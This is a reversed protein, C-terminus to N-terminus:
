ENGKDAVSKLCDRFFRADDTGTQYEYMKPDFVCAVIEKKHVTLPHLAAVNVIRLSTGHPEASSADLEAIVRQLQSEDMMVLEEPSPINLVSRVREYSRAMFEFPDVGRMIRQVATKANGMDENLAINGEKSCIYQELESCLREVDERLLASGEFYFPGEGKRLHCDVVKKNRTEKKIETGDFVIEDNQILCVKVDADKTVCLEHWEYCERLIQDALDSLSM